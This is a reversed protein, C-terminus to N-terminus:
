ILEKDDKTAKNMFDFVESINKLCSGGAVFGRQLPHLPAKEKTEELIYKHLFVEYLKTIAPLIAIVRVDGEQPYETDDKSLLITRAKKM